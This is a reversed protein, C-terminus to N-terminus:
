HDRFMKGSKRQHEDYTKTNFIRAILSLQFLITFVLNEVERFRTLPM